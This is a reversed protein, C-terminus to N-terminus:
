RLCNEREQMIVREFDSIDHIRAFLAIVGRNFHARLMKNLYIEPDLGDKNLRQIMLAMFMDEYDGFLVSPHIESGGEDFEDPNPPSPDNLSMCIAFRGVINPTVGTRTKLLAILNQSRHSMRLRSFRLLESERHIGFIDM